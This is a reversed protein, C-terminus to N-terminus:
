ELCPTSATRVALWFWVLVAGQGQYLLAQNDRGCSPESRQGVNLRQHTKTLPVQFIKLFPKAGVEGRWGLAVCVKEPCALQELM